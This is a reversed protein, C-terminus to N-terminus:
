VRSYGRLGCAALRSHYMLLSTFFGSWGIELLVRRVSFSTKKSSFHYRSWAIQDMTNMRPGNRSCLWPPTLQVALHDVPAVAIFTTFSFNNVTCYSPDHYCHNACFGLFRVSFLSISNKLGTGVAVHRVLFWSNYGVHIFISTTLFDNSCLPDQANKWCV